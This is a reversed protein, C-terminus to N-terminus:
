CRRKWEERQVRTEKILVVAERIRQVPTEEIEEM